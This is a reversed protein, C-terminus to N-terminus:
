FMKVQSPIPVSAEARAVNTVNMAVGIAKGGSKIIEPAVANAQELDLDAIAVKARELAYREAIAKGIGNM